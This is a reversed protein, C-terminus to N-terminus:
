NHGWSHLFIFKSWVFAILYGEQHNDDILKSIKERLM